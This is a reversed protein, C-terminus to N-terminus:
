CKKRTTRLRRPRGTCTASSTRLSEIVAPADQGSRRPELMKRNVDRIRFFLDKEHASTPDPRTWIDKLQDERRFLLQTEARRLKETHSKSWRNKEKERNPSKRRDKHQRNLSRDASPSPSPTQKRSPTPSRSVGSRSAASSDSQGSPTGSRQHKARARTSRHVQHRSGRGKPTMCPAVRHCGAPISCGVIWESQTGAQHAHAHEQWQHGCWPDVRSRQGEFGKSLSTTASTSTARSNAAPRADHLQARVLAQSDGQEAEGPAAQALTIGAHVQEEVETQPTSEKTICGGRRGMRGVRQLVGASDVGRGRAGGLLNSESWRGAQRDRWSSSKTRALLRTPLLQRSVDM